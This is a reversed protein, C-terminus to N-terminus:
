GAMKMALKSGGSVEFAVFDRVLDLFGQKAFLGRSRSRRERLHPDALREGTITRWPKM